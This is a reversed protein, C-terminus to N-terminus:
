LAVALRRLEFIVVAGMIRKWGAADEGATAQCRSRVTSIKLNVRKPETKVDERTSNGLLQNQEKSIVYRCPGCLFVVNGATVRINRAYENDRFTNEL